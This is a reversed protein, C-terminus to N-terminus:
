ATALAPNGSGSSGSQSRADQTVRLVEELTTTGDFVKNLGDAFLSRMGQQMALEYLSAWDSKELVRERMEPTMM